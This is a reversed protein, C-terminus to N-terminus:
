ALREGRVDSPFHSKVRAMTDFVGGAPSWRVVGLNVPTSTTGSTVAAAARPAPPAATAAAQDGTNPTTPMLGRHKAGGRRGGGRRSGVGRGGGGRAGSSARLGVGSSRHKYFSKAVYQVDALSPHLANVSSNSAQMTASVQNDERNKELTVHRLYVWTGPSLLLARWQLYNYPQPCPHHVRLM